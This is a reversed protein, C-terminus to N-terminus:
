KAGKLAEYGARWCAIQMGRTFDRAQDIDTGKPVPFWSNPFESSNIVRAQEPKGHKDLKIELEVGRAKVKM